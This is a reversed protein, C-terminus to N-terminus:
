GIKLAAPTWNRARRALRNEVDEGEFDTPMFKTFVDPTELCWISIVAKLGAPTEGVAGLYGDCKKCIMFDCTATGFRHKNWLSEDTIAIQVSGEPDSVHTGNRGVCFSCGCKRAVFEAPPKSLLLTLKFNGCRCGGTLQHM